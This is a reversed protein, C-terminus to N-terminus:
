LLATLVDIATITVNLSKFESLAVARRVEAYPM